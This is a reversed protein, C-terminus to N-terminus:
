VAPSRAVICSHAYKSALGNCLRIYYVKALPDTLRSHLQDDCGRVFDAIRKPDDEAAKLMLAVGHRAGVPDRATAAARLVGSLVISDLQAAQGAGARQFGHDPRNSVFLCSTLNRLVM